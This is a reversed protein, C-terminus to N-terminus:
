KGYVIGSANTSAIAHDTLSANRLTEDRYFDASTYCSSPGPGSYRSSAPAQSEDMARFVPELPTKYRVSWRHVLKAATLSACQVHRAFASRLSPPLFPTRPVCCGLPSHWDNASRGIADRIPLLRGGIMLRRTIRRTYDTM